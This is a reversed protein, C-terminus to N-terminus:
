LSTLSSRTSRISASRPAPAPRGRWLRRRRGTRCPRRMAGPARRCPNRRPASSPRPRGRARCPRGAHGEAHQVLGLGSPELAGAQGGVVVVEVGAGVEVIADDRGAAIVVPRRVSFATRPAPMSIHQPPMMPMPSPTTSRAAMSCTSAPKSGCGSLTGILASTGTAPVGSALLPLTSASSRTRIIAVARITMGFARTRSEAPRAEKDRSACIRHM